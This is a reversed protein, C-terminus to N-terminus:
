QNETNSSKQDCHGLSPGTVHCGHGRPLGLLLCVCVVCVCACVHTRTDFLLRTSIINGLFGADCGIVGRIRGGALRGDALRKRLESKAWCHREKKKIKERKRKRLDLGTWGKLRTITYVLGITSRLLYVLISNIFNHKTSRIYIYGFIFRHFDNSDM